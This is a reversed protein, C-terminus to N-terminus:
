RRPGLQRRQAELRKERAAWLEEPSLGGDGDLDIEAFRQELVRPLDSAQLEALNLQRDQDTDAARFRAEYKERLRERREDLLADRDTAFVPVWSPLISAVCVSLWALWSFIRNKQGAKRGM